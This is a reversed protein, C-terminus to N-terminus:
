RCGDPSVKETTRIWQPDNRVTGIIYAQLRDSFVPGSRDLDPVSVEVTEDDDVGLYHEGCGLGGIFGKKVHPWGAGIGGRDVADRARTM